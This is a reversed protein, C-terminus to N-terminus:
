LFNTKIKFKKLTLGTLNYLKQYAHLPHLTEIDSSWGYKEYNANGVSNNNSITSLQKLVSLKLM